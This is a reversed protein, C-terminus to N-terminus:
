QSYKTQLAILINLITQKDEETLSKADRPTLRMTINGLNETMKIDHGFIISYIKIIKKLRSKIIKNNLKDITTYTSNITKNLVSFMILYFIDSLLIILSSLFLILLVFLTIISFIIGVVHISNWNLIIHRLLIHFFFAGVMFSASPATHLPTLIKNMEFYDGAINKHKIKSIANYIAEIVYYMSLYAIFWISYYDLKVFVSILAFIPLIIKTFEVMLSQMNGDNFYTPKIAMVIGMIIDFIFYCFLCWILLM